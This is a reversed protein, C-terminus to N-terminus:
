GRVVGQGKIRWAKVTRDFTGTHKARIVIGTDQGSGRGM